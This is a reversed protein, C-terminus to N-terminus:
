SWERGWLDLAARKEALYTYRNYTGHVGQVEHGLVREIHEQPVQMRAMETAASRRLDHLTWGEVGSLRVARAKAKSFGSIPRQGHTTSLLCDGANWRPLGDILAQAPVSLPVVQPRGTKRMAGPVEFAPGGDVDILWERRLNAVEGRRQGTLILLRILSGFPYGMDGAADWVRRLEGMTLVREREVYGLDPMKAGALPNAPLYDRDAAWNLMKTLHKRVERAQGVGAERTVRDLLRFCMGRTVRDIPMGRFEPVVFQRLLRETDRWKKTKAKAHLEIFDDLIAEVVMEARQRVEERRADAPDEGEDASRCATRALDRAEALRVLPYQGLTMRRLPGRKGGVGRGAVRYMVSWSKRGAETVRLALGPALEDFIELRKGAQPGIREVGVETLRKKM